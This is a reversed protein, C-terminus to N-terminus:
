ALLFVMLVVHAKGMAVLIMLELTHFPTEGLIQM